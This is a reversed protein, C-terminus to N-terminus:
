EGTPTPTDRTEKPIKEINHDSKNLISPNSAVEITQSYEVSDVSSKQERSGTPFQVESNNLSLGTTKQDITVTTFSESQTVLASPIEGQEISESGSPGQPEDLVAVNKLEEADCEEKKPNSTVNKSSAVNKECTGDTPIQQESKGETTEPIEHCINENATGSYSSTSGADAQYISDPTIQM